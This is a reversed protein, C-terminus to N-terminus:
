VKKDIRLADFPESTELVDAKENLVATKTEGNVTYEIQAGVLNRALLTPIQPRLDKSLDRKFDRIVFNRCGTEACILPLVEKGKAPASAYVHLGDFAVDEILGSGEPMEEEKFLPTRCYRAGDMNIAYMRCGCEINRFRIRRIPSTVSALRVFTYCDKARVDSIEIDEIPGRVLGRNELRQTSDDANLAIMDDNTEGDTAEVDRIVGHRCEGSFHLGDQNFALQRAGIRIHEILFGDLRGMRVYYVVSNVLTLNRLTLNKVGVFNLMTGSWADPAFLDAPKNNNKGDYNGDWIGGDVVINVSGDDCTMLFDGEHKPLSGCHIIRAKEDARLVTDSHIRLTRTVRYDGAPIWVEGGKGADLAAQIAEYDDACGDGLAGFRRVDCIEM